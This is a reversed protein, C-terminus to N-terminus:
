YITSLATKGNAVIQTILKPREEEIMMSELSYREGRACRKLDRVVYILNPNYVYKQILM